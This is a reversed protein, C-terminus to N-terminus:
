GDCAEGERPGEGSGCFRLAVTEGARVWAGARAPRELALWAGRSSLVRGPPLGRWSRLVRGDSRVLAVDIPYRMGFTHISSCDVLAVPTALEDTGLLGRLREAWGRLTRFRLEPCRDGRGRVCLTEVM